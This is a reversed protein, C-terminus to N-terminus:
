LWKLRFYKGGASVGGGIIILTVGVLSYLGPIHNFILVGILMSWILQSYQLVGVLYIPLNVFALIICYAATSMLAGSIIILVLDHLDPIRFDSLSTLFFVVSMLISSYYTFSLPNENKGSRRMLLNNISSFIASIVALLYTLDFETVGPRLIFMVGTLGILVALLKIRTIYEKLFFHGLLSSFIPATFIISYVLSIDLKSFSYIVTTSVIINLIGRVLHLKYNKTKILHKGQKLVILSLIIFNTFNLFFIIQFISYKTTLEKVVYDMCTFFFFAACGILVFKLSIIKQFM